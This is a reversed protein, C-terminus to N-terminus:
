PINDSTVVENAAWVQVTLRFAVIILWLVAGTAYATAVLVPVLSGTGVKARAYAYAVAGLITLVVGIAFCAHMWYWAAQNQGIVQLSRKLPSYWQEWPPSFAGITFVVGGILLLTAAIRYDDWTTAAMTRHRGELAFDDPM